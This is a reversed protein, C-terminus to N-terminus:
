DRSRRLYVTFQGLRRDVRWSSALEAELRRFGYAALGKGQFDSFILTDISRSALFRPLEAEEEPSLFGHTMFSEHHSTLQGSFVQLAPEPLIFVEEGRSNALRIVELCANSGRAYELDTRIEANRGDIPHNGPHFPRTEGLVVQVVVLFGCIPVLAAPPVRGVGPGAESAADLGDPLRGGRSGPARVLSSVVLFGLWLPAAAWIFYVFQAQPFLVFAHTMSFCLLLLLEAFAPGTRSSSDGTRFFTIFTMLLLGAPVLLGSAQFFYAIARNRMGPHFGPLDDGCLLGVAPWAVLGTLVVGCFARLFRQRAAALGYTSALCVCFLVLCSPGAPFGGYTTVAEFYVKPTNVLGQITRGIAHPGSRAVSIGLTVLPPVAFGALCVLTEHLFTLAPQTVRWTRALLAIWFVVFPFWLYTFYGPGAPLTVLGLFALGGLFVTITQIPPLSLRRYRSPRDGGPVPDLRAALWFLVAALQFAGQTHKFAFSCGALLGALLLGGTRPTRHFRILALLAATGFLLCFVTNYPALFNGRVGYFAFCVAPVCAWPGELYVRSLRYYMVLYAACVILTVLRLRLISFGIIWTVAANFYALGGFYAYTFDVHPTQGRLVRFSDYALQGEDWHFGTDIKYSLVALIYALVTVWLGPDRLCRSM